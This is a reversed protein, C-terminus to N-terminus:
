ADMFFRCVYMQLIASIFVALMLLNTVCDSIIVLFYFVKISSRSTFASPSRTVSFKGPKTTQETLPESIKQETLVLRGNAIAEEFKM